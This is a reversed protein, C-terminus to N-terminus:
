RRGPAILFREAGALEAELARRFAPDRPRKGSVFGFDSALKGETFSLNAWGLVQERWLLPLAYYGFRRKAVPTYAEFRYAWGWFSEFRRRDWVVPDFPGLLRVRGDDFEGDRRVRIREGAPWYWDIGAVRASALRAKARALARGLEARWQPAAYRLRGVLSTLSAAPLPAYKGVVLDVLADVGAVRDREAAPEAVAYVRIGADRRVVRLVGRYHLQELLRTTTNSSGSWYNTETGSGLEREVERPHVVERTRVFELV